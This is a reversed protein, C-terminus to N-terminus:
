TSKKILSRIDSIESPKVMCCGGIIGVLGSNLWSNVQPLWYLGSAQSRDQRDNLRKEPKKRNDPYLILKQSPNLHKKAIEIFPEIVEPKCCNIGIAAVCSFGALTEFVTEFSDGYSTAKGTDTTFSVWATTTGPCSELVELIAIAESLAPITEVALYDVGKAVLACVNDQHFSKLTDQVVTGIYSGTYESMDHLIAGYPSISGAVKIPRSAQSQSIAKRAIDVSAGIIDLAELKSIGAHKMFGEVSAQYSGTTIIDCGANIFRIHSEMLVNQDALLYRALWLPDDNLTDQDVGGNIFLDSGLGGDLIQILPSFM